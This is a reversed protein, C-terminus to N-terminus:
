SEEPEDAIREALPGVNRPEVVHFQVLRREKQLAFKGLVPVEDLPAFLLVADARHREWSPQLQDRLDGLGDGGRVRHANQVFVQLRLVHEHLRAGAALWRRLNRVKSDTRQRIFGREGRVRNRRRAEGHICEHAAATAAAHRAKVRRGLLERTLDERHLAVHIREAHHEVLDDDAVEGAGERRAPLPLYFVVDEAFVEGLTEVALGGAAEGAGGFKRLAQARQFFAACLALVLVLARRIVGAAFAVGAEREAGARDRRHNGDRQADTKEAFAFQALTRVFRLPECLGPEVVRLLRAICRLFEDRLGDEAEALFEHRESFDVDKIAHGRRRFLIVRLERHIQNGIHCSAVLHHQCEIAAHDGRNRRVIFRGLCGVCFGEGERAPEGCFSGAILHQIFGLIKGQKPEGIQTEALAPRLFQFPEALLERREGFLPEAGLRLSGACKTCLEGPLTHFQNGDRIGRFIGCRNQRKEEFHLRDRIIELM